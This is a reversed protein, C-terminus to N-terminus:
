LVNREFDDTRVKEIESTEKNLICCQILDIMEM